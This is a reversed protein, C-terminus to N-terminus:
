ICSRYVHHFGSTPSYRTIKVFQGPKANIYRAMADTKLISPFQSKSKTNFTEILSAIIVPNKVLEHKPVLMHRSINFQLEKLEFVQIDKKIENITKLNTTTMKQRVVVIYIEFPDDFMKKIDAIKFRSAIHFIIRLRNNYDLAFVQKHSVISKIDAISYGNIFNAYDTDSRDVMMEGLTTLGKSVFINM